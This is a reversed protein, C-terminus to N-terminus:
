AADLDSELLAQLRDAIAEADDGHVNLQIQDGNKVGLTLVELLSSADASKGDAVIFVEHGTVDVAQAVKAAPRSHLGSTSGITVSRSIM